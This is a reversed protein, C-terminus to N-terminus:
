VELEDYSLLDEKTIAIEVSEASSAAIRSMMKSETREFITRATRGNAFYRGKSLKEIIPLYHERIGDSIAYGEKRCFIEFIRYVEEPTYDDFYVVEGRSRMGSNSQFFGEMERKYGAFILCCRKRNEPKDMFAILENIAEKNFDAGSDQRGALGYAEDLFLTGNKSSELLESTKKDTQGVYGSTFDKATCEIFKDTKIVGLESLCQSFLHAATTKGTGPNGLFFYYGPIIDKTKGTKKAFEIENRKQEIIKKINEMGALDNLEKMVDDFSRPHLKNQINMMDAEQIDDSTLENKSERSIMDKTRVRRKKNMDDFFALVEGANGFRETRTDYRHALVLRIIKEAEEAVTLGEKKTKRMFIEFLQEPNYDPFNIVRRIRRELGANLKLFADVRDAYMGFIMKFDAANETMKAMMAGVTEQAYGSEAILYAEDIFLVSNKNVAEQIKDLIKAAADGYSRGIIDGAGCEVTESGGLVGMLHYFKGMLKGVTTKGTGPNGAFIYHDPLVDKDAAVDTQAKEREEEIELRIDEFIDKMFDLGVYKDLEAYIEDLSGAGRKVFYESHDGFDDLIIKNSDGRAAANQVAYDAIKEADGANRFTERNRRSHLNTFFLDLSLPEGSADKLDFEYGKKECRKVFIDKLLDPPYDDITLINSEGFRGMLGPNMKELLEDMKKPYGAMILCFRYRKDTMLQVLTNVAQEGFSDQENKKYLSYAEDVFLVGENANEVCRGTKIATGGINDAVIDREAVEYVRGIELIGADYLIQGILRAVTTKGVGPNGRFVFHPVPYRFGNPEERLFRSNGWRPKNDETSAIKRENEFKQKENEFDKLIANMREYIKEWGRTKGLTELPGADNEASSSPFMKKVEKETLATTEGGNKLFEAFVDNIERLYGRRRAQVASERSFYLIQSVLRRKDKQAYSIRKGDKGIIRYYDLLFGIEDRNPLGVEILTDRNASYNNDRNFFKNKFGEGGMIADFANRIDDATKEVALFVCINENKNRNWMGWLTTVLERYPQQPHSPDNLFDDFNVFVVASKISRDSMIAKAESLFEASTIKPQRYILEKKVDKGSESKEPPPNGTDTSSSRSTERPAKPNLLRKKKVAAGDEPASSKNSNIALIASEDDRVYKGLNKAGSYYVIRKYGLYKKLHVNLFSQFDRQQLDNMMFMDQLDGCILFVNNLNTKEFVSFL